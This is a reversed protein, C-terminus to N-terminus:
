RLADPGYDVSITLRSRVQQGNKRGPSFRAAALATRTAAEFYGPPDAAVVQVDNVAGLEDIWLTVSVSGRTQARALGDPQGFVLPALPMPYVDLEHAAHYDAPMQPRPMVAAGSASGEPRAYRMPEVAAPQLGTTAPPLGQPYLVAPARLPDAPAPQLWVALAGSPAPLAAPPGAADQFTGAVIWAHVLASAALSWALRARVFSVAPM